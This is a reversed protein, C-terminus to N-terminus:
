PVTTVVVQVIKKKKQSGFRGVSILDISKLSLRSLKVKRHNGM